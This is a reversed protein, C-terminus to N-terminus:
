QRSRIYNIIDDPLSDVDIPKRIYGDCGAELAQKEDKEMANATVAIILTNKLEPISRLRITAELGDMEPMSMDMLIVDPRNKQALEIGKIASEAELVDFDFDSALLIRRVLMRNDPHDEIYLVQPMSATDGPVPVIRSVGNDTLSTSKFMLDQVNYHVNLIILADCHKILM